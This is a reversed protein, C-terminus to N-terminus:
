GGHNVRKRTVVPTVILGFIQEFLRAKERLALQSSHIDSVSDVRFRLENETREITCEAANQTHLNDLADAVRLFSALKNVTMKEERTLLNYDTHTPKPEARRHYRATLAVIRIDTRSLGFLDSNEILYKSHKHHASLSVFRGCDHLLAAVRLLLEHHGNLKHENSMERFIMQALKEVCDAHNMDCNYKLASQRASSIIQKEFDRRWKLPNGAEALLGSRLTAGCLLVQKLSLYEAIQTYALLSFGLIQAEEIPMKFRSAIEEPDLPFFEQAQKRLSGLNVTLLTKEDWEPKIRRAAFRIEGGMLILRNIRIDALDDNISRLLSNIENKAMDSEIRRTTSIRNASEFFRYSGFRYSHSFRVEGQRMGLLDTTGGGIELICINKELLKARSRILPWVGLFTLRNVTAGDIPQVWIGTAVYIRELFTDCNRAERVASTAVATVDCTLDAGYEKIVSAFSRFTRVCQEVSNRQIRGSNFTDRGLQVSQYLSDLPLIKGDPTAQVIEMRASVSGLDIVAKIRPNKM